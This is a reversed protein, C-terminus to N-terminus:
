KADTSLHNAQKLIETPLFKNTEKEILNILDRKILWIKDHYRKIFDFADFKSFGTGLTIMYNFKAFREMLVIGSKIDMLARQRMIEKGYNDLFDIENFPILNRKTHLTVRRIPDHEAYQNLVFHKQWEQRSMLSISRKTTVNQVGIAFYDIQPIDLSYVYDFFTKKTTETLIPLYSNHKM